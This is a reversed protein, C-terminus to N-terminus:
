RFNHNNVTSASFNHSKTSVRNSIHINKNEKPKKKKSKNPMHNPYCNSHHINPSHCSLLIQTSYDVPVTANVSHPLHFHNKTIQLKSLFTHKINKEEYKKRRKWNKDWYKNKIKTINTSPIFRIQFKRVKKGTM